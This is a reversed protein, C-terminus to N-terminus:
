FYTIVIFNHTFHMLMAPYLSGTKHRTWGFHMGLLFHVPFSAPAMHMMAFLGSAIVIAVPISLAKALWHQILGRFAIEEIVAPLVAVLIVLQVFSFADFVDTSGLNKVGMLRGLLYHYGLNFALLPILLALAIWFWRNTFGSVSLQERLSARYIYACGATIAFLVGQMILILAHHPIKGQVLLAILNMCILTTLYLFTLQRAAPARETIIRQIGMHEEPVAPLVEELPKHPRACRTCFYYGPSLPAGCYTCLDPGKPPTNEPM